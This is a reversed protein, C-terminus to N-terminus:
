VVGVLVPDIEGRWQERVASMRNVFFETQSHQPALFFVVHNTRFALVECAGTGKAVRKSMVDIYEDRAQRPFHQYVLVSHGALYTDALERWLLYKPSDKRGPPCSSVELGNDPDFFVLESGAALSLMKEFQRRRHQEHQPVVESFFRAAPLVGATEIAGVSRAGARVATRLSDFLEPDRARWLSPSELYGLRRGDPGDDDPTLLWAIFSSKRGRDTLTRLLGYKLYDNVDGVYQHKV